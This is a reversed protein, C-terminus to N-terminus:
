AGVRLGRRDALRLKDRQARLEEAREVARFTRDNIALFDVLASLRIGPESLVRRLLLGFLAAFRRITAPEFLGSRYEFIGRLEQQGEYIHLVLDLETRPTDFHIVDFALGPIDLATSPVNHYVVKVQFIPAHLLSREPRLEEVLKDFPCEQHDYASLTMERVQTLTRSFRPDGDLKIRLAVLNVFFGILPEFEGQPRNAVDAGVVLDTAGSLYRLLGAFAALITMFPTVAHQRNFAELAPLQESLNFEHSGAADGTEISRPRDVPLDLFQTAGKLHDTWYDLQRLFHEGQMRERQWITYDPYQVPLPPLSPEHGDRMALYLTALEKLFISLSWGDFVIHHFCIVVVCVPSASPQPPSLRYLSARVLPGHALDFPTAIFERM